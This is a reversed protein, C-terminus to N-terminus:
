MNLFNVNLLIYNQENTKQKIYIHDKSVNNYLINAILVISMRFANYIFNQKKFQFFLLLLLIFSIKNM